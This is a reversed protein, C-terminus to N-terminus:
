RASEMALLRIYAQRRARPVQLVQSETWGYASALQHVEQLLSHVHKAIWSLPDFWFTNQEACANCDYPLAASFEPAAAAVEALALEEDALQGDILLDSPVVVQTDEILREHFGNPQMLRAGNADLHYAKAEVYQYEDPSVRLENGASCAMCVSVFRAPWRGQRFALAFLAATRDVVSLRQGARNTLTQMAGELEYAQALLLSVRQARSGGMSALDGLRLLAQEDEQSLRYRLERWSFEYTQPVHSSPESRKSIM